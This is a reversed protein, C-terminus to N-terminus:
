EIMIGKSDGKSTDLNEDDQLMHSNLHLSKHSLHREMGTETSHNSNKIGRLGYLSKTQNRSKIMQKVLKQGSDMPSSPVTINRTSVPVVIGKDIIQGSSNVELDFNTMKKLENRNLYLSEVRFNDLSIIKDQLFGKVHKKTRTEADKKDLFSTQFNKELYKVQKQKGVLVNTKKTFKQYDKELCHSHVILKDEKFKKLRLAALEEVLKVKYSQLNNSSVHDMRIKKAEINIKKREFFNKQQNFINDSQMRLGSVIKHNERIMKLTQTQNHTNKLKEQHNQVRIEKEHLQKVRFKKTELIQDFEKHYRAIINLKKVEDRKLSKARQETQFINKQLKIEKSNQTAIARFNQTNLQSLNEIHNQVVNQGKLIIQKRAKLNDMNSLPRDALLQSKNKLSINSQNLIEPNSNDVMETQCSAYNEVRNEKDSSLKRGSGSKQSSM